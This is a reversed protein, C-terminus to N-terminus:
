KVLRPGAAAWVHPSGFGGEAPLGDPVFPFAGTHRGTSLRITGTTDDHHDANLASVLPGIGIRMLLETAHAGPGHM